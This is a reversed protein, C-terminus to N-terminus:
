KNYEEEPVIYYFNDNIREASKDKSKMVLIKKYSNHMWANAILMLLAGFLFDVM